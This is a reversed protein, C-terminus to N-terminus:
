RKDPGGARSGSFMYIALAIWFVGLAIDSVPLRAGEAREAIANYIQLLGALLGLIGAVIRAKGGM